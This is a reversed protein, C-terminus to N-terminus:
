KATEAQRVVLIEVRRNKQRNAETDNAAVPRTDAYGAIEFLKEPLKRSDVFYRLVSLARGSSLGWNDQFASGPQIPLNDTHGQISITTDLKTFLSSLKDLAPRAEPKLDAKGLDFLFRDSLRIAIGQPTDGVFVDQQLKNERVYTEIVKLLDQLAQERRKAIEADLDAAASPPPTATPPPTDYKAVDTGGELGSGMEIISDARHFELQLSKALSDYKKIDIQSMAYMIIFFILLLTILDAYTILWREHNEHGSRKRRNRRRAM